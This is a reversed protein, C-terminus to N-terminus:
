RAGEPMLEAEPINGEYGTISEFCESIVSLVSLPDNIDRELYLGVPGTLEYSNIADEVALLIIRDGSLKGVGNDFTYTIKQIQNFLVGEISFM